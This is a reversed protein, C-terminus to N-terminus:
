APKQLVLFLSSGWPKKQIYRNEFSTLQYFFRNLFAPPMKVDSVLSNNNSFFLKLRQMSRVLFIAPSLLFPWYTLEKIAATGIVMEKITKKSYRRKIAVAVDHSGYFANLAAFNMLLLGGPKLFSLLRELVAKDEGENLLVLTDNSIVIDFSSPPYAADLKTLDHTQVDVGSSERAYSVADASLDFGSINTYGSKKLQLLMGGTGCGADLVRPNSVVTHDKIKRLTLEHLCRYWWLEQECQAMADYEYRNGIM